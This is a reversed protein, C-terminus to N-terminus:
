RPALWLWWLAIAVALWLALALALFVVLPLHEASAAVVSAFCALAVVAVRGGRANDLAERRGDHQRVLTLSAPLIAPFALFMGGVALGYEAGLWGAIATVAGGFVFRLAYEWARLKGLKALSAHPRTM